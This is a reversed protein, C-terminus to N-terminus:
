RPDPRANSEMFTDGATAEIAQRRWLILGMAILGAVGMAARAAQLHHPNWFRNADLFPLAVPSVILTAAEIPGRYSAILHGPQYTLILVGFTLLAGVILWFVFQYGGFRKARGRTASLCALLGVPFVLFFPAQIVSALSHILRARDAEDLPMATAESIVLVGAGFVLGLACFILTTRWAGWADAALWYRVWRVPAWRSRTRRNRAMVPEVLASYASALGVILIAVYLPSLGTYIATQSIGSSAMRFLDAGLWSITLTVILCKIEVVRTDVSPSIKDCCGYFFLLIVQAYFLLFAGVALWASPDLSVLRQIIDTSTSGFGGRMLMFLLGALNTLLNIAFLVGFVTIVTRVVSPARKKKRKASLSIGLVVLFIVPTVLLASVASSVVTFFDLGGLIFAFFFFPVICFFGFLFQTMMSLLKGLVLKELPLGSLEYLEFTRNAFERATLSYSSIAVILVYLALVNVLIAFVTPGAFDRTDVPLAVILVAVIEAIGLLIMFQVTFAKGRMWQTMDKYLM